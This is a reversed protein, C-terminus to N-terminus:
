FGTDSKLECERRLFDFAFAVREADEKTQFLFLPAAAVGNRMGVGTSFYSRASTHGSGDPINWPSPTGSASASLARSWDIERVVSAPPSKHLRSAGNMSRPNEMEIRSRCRDVATWGTVPGVLSLAALSGDQEYRVTDGENQPVLGGDRELLMLYAYFGAQGAFESLFRQASEATRQASGESGDQAAASAATALMLLTLGIRRM